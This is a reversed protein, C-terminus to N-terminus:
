RQPTSTTSAISARHSECWPDQIHESQFRALLTRPCSGYKKHLEVNTKQFDGRSYKRLLWLRTFRALFPGPIKRLPDFLVSRLWNLIFFVGFTLLIIKAPHLQWTDLDM